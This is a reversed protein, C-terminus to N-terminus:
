RSAPAEVDFEPASNTLFASYDSEAAAALPHNAFAYCRRRADLFPREWVPHPEFAAFAAVCAAPDQIRIAVLVRKKLRQLELHRAAFPQGLAEFFRPAAQPRAELVSDILPLTREILPSFFFGDRRCGELMTLLHEVAADADARSWALRADLAAGETPAQPRLKEIAVAAREDELETLVEAVLLHDLHDVVERTEEFWHRGAEDLKGQGYAARASRRSMQEGEPQSSATAGDYVATALTARAHRLEDVRAWDPPTGRGAPRQASFIRAMRQIEHLRFLGTRGVNRAFGFEITPRDDTSVRSTPASALAAALRNDAIYGSYFGELGEVRWLWRLASAFPEQDVRGHIRDFDHVLPKRSAVLLLDTAHVQWTELHPFVSSLTTYVTQVVTPDVEYGQLWQLFIGDEGLRKEVARYFDQSFLNAVGARYPNSPESFILDFSEDSSLVVERGDGYILRMKPSELVNHNIAAFEHAFDVVAPELEVVDVREMSDIATLWGATTGTGLGIVLSRKPEPHLLAGVLGSMVMTPADVRASGDSKGNVVLALEDRGMLSVSSEVGEAERVLARRADHLSRQLGNPDRFDVVARGAGIPVHRWFATPGAAFCLVVSVAAGALALALRLRSPSRAHSVVASIAALAVLLLASLWWLRPASFVPLLGFGGALSGLIAGWTNWAYILGVEYGVRRRDDGLLAVLLPFQYGAVIAAPLVVISTVLTWGAVLGAFGVASLPRITAAFLALHDGMAYPVILFFAELACTVALAFFTPRESRSGAAYLLGGIGIGLLAVSLILGFTYSSGGLVPALMRYWVLEMLFFAFGVLGAIPLVLRATSSLRGAASAETPAADAKTDEGAEDLERGRALNRVVLALLLNILAAVWLTQRIGLLELFAFTTLFAGSVAGLTNLGYLWAVDRRGRDAAREMAQAVAPLTGGMLTTSAGLVIVSLVLRIVTAVGLGLTSVGGLAVYLSRALDVLLPSLAATVAIGLELNAYFALPNRARRVRRGFLYGGLGLGGMFIALVAASSATSAGFVLRLLRLWAVQYVLSCFGSVFLVASIRPWLSTM